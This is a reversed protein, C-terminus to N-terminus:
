PCLIVDMWYYIESLPCVNKATRLYGELKLKEAQLTKINETAQKLKNTLDHVMAQEDSNRKSTDKLLQNIEELHKKNDQELQKVQSQLSENEKELRSLSDQLAKSRGSDGSVGGGESLEQLQKKLGDIEQTFQL